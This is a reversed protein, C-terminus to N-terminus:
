LRQQCHRISRHPHSKALGSSRCVLGWQSLPWSPHPSHVFLRQCPPCVSSPHCFEHSMSWWRLLWPSRRVSNWLPHRHNSCFASKHWPCHCWLRPTQTHPAQLHNPCQRRSSPMRCHEQMSHRGGSLHHQYRHRSKSALLKWCYCYWPPLHRRMPHQWFIRLTSEIM